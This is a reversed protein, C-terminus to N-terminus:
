ALGAYNLAAKVALQKATEFLIGGAKGAMATATRKVISGAETREDELDKATAGEDLARALEAVDREDAGEGLLVKRLSALDGTIVQQVTQQVQMEGGVSLNSGNAYITRHFIQSAANATQATVEITGDNAEPIAGELELVFDLIRTRIQSLVDKVQSPSVSLWVSVCHQYQGIQGTIWDELSPFAPSLKLADEHRAWASLEAIGHGLPVRTLNEHQDEPFVGMPVPYNKLLNYGSVIDGQLFGRITRYEPMEDLIPYGSLEREAWSKLPEYRLRHALLVCRRLVEELSTTESITGDRIEDLLGM